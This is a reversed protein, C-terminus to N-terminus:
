VHNRLKLEIPHPNLYYQESLYAVSYKRVFHTLLTVPVILPVLNKHFRDIVELLEQKEDATIIKKFYGLIHMLVNTHTKATPICKMAQMLLKQYEAHLQPPEYEKGAAVLKGMSRYYEVSHAMILLKHRAHFTVLKGQTPTNELFTRWRQMTFIQEIFNERLHPACLRGEEEVPLLPFEDMFARAFMGVGTKQPPGANPQERPDVDAYVGVREMGSSPSNRKFIYGCLNESRLEQVRQTCYTQMRETHDQYTRSTVLRPNQPDGVLRMAERPTPLGCEVEPCVPVFEVYQGLTEMIWPDRKHGGDFRVKNGLLCSAIGLRIPSTENEM